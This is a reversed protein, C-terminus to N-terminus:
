ALLHWVIGAKAPSGTKPVPLAIKIAAPWSLKAHSLQGMFTLNRLDLTQLFDLMWGVHGEYTYASGHIPKDSRGFGILDPVIVRHGAALLPPIMHRKLFGWTPQGHLLLVTESADKPGVDVYAQRLGGGVSAYSPKYCYSAPLSAFRGSPTRLVDNSAAYFNRAFSARLQMSRRGVRGLM